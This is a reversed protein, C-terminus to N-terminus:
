IGSPSPPPGVAPLRVPRGNVRGVGGRQSNARMRQMCLERIDVVTLGMEIEHGCSIVATRLHGDRKKVEKVGTGENSAPELDLRLVVFGRPWPQQM